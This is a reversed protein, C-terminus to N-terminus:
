QILKEGTQNPNIELFALIAPSFNSVCVCKELFHIYSYNSLYVERSRLIKYEGQNVGALSVFRLSTFRAMISRNKM